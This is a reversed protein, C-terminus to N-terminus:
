IGLIAKAAMVGPSNCLLDPQNGTLISMCATLYNASAIINQTLPVSTDNFYNSITSRSLGSLLSPEIQASNLTFVNGFSVFPARGNPNLTNILAQYYTGMNIYQPLLNGFINGYEIHNYTFYESTYILDRTTFTQIAALAAVDSTGSQMNELGKFTGFRSLAILLPWREYACAPCGEGTLSFVINTVFPYAGSSSDWLVANGSGDNVVINGSVDRIYVGSTDSFVSTPYGIIPKFLDPGNVGIANFVPSEITIINNIIEQTTNEPFQFLYQYLSQSGPPVILPASYQEPIVLLMDNTCTIQGTNLNGSVDLNGINLNSVQIAGAQTGTVTLQNVNVLGASLIGSM